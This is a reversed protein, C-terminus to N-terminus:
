SFASKSNIIISAVILVERLKQMTEQKCDPSLGTVVGYFQKVEPLPVRDSVDVKSLLEGSFIAVAGKNAITGCYNSASFLTLVQKNHAWQFGEDKQFLNVITYFRVYWKM